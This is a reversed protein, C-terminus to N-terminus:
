NEIFQTLDIADEIYLNATDSCEGLMDVIKNLNGVNNSNAEIYASIMTEIEFCASDDDKYGNFFESYGFPDGREESQWSKNNKINWQRNTKDFRLTKGISKDLMFSKTVNTVNTAKPKFFKGFTTSVYELVNPHYTNTVDDVDLDVVDDAKIHFRRKNGTVSAVLNYTSDSQKIDGVVIHLGPDTLEYQDDVGSFFPKMTNHSHSSGVATWGIPPYSELKEGTLIDVCKQFNGANVRGGSVEQLPLLFRYKSDDVDSRLIRVSVEVNSNIKASFHFALDIWASWLEKPIKNINKNLEFLKLQEEKIEVINADPDYTPAIYSGWTDNYVQFVGQRYTRLLTPVEIEPQEDVVEVFESHEVFTM